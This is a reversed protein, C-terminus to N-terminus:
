TEITDSESSDIETGDADSITREYTVSEITDVSETAYVSTSFDVTIGARTIWQEGAIYDLNDIGDDRLYSIRQAKLTDRVAIKHLNELAQYALSQASSEVDSAYFQCSVTFLADGKYSHIITDEGADYTKYTTLRGIVPGSIIKITAYPYDPRPAQQGAVLV